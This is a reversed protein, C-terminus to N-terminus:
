GPVKMQRLHLKGNNLELALNSAWQPQGAKSSLADFACQQSNGVGIAEVGFDLAGVTVGVEAMFEYAFM